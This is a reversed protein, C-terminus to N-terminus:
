SHLIVHIKKVVHLFKLPVFLTAKLHYILFIMFCKWNSQAKEKYNKEWKKRNRHGPQDLLIHFSTLNREKSKSEATHKWSQQTERFYFHYLFGKRRDKRELPLLSSLKTLKTKTAKKEWDEWHSIMWLSQSKYGHFFFCSISLRGRLSFTFTVNSYINVSRQSSKWLKRITIWKKQPVLQYKLQLFLWIYFFCDNSDRPHSSILSLFNNM